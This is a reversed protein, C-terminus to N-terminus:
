EGVGLVGNGQDPAAEAQLVGGMELVEEDAEIQRALVEEAGVHQAHGDRRAHLVGESNRRPSPHRRRECPKWRGAPRPTKEQRAIDVEVGMEMSFAVGISRCYRSVFARKGSAM